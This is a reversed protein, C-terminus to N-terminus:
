EGEPKPNRAMDEQVLRRIYPKPGMAKIHEYLARDEDNDMNFELNLQRTKKKRKKLANRQADSMKSEFRPILEYQYVEEDTLRGDYEVWGWVPVPAGKIPLRDDLNHVEIIKLDPRKPFSGPTLPRNPSFYIM